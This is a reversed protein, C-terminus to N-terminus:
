HSINLSFFLYETTNEVVKSWSQGHEKNCYLFLFLNINAWSSKCKEKEGKEEINFNCGTKIM